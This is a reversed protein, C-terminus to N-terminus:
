IGYRGRLANFNQSVEAATLGVNYMRAVSISGAWGLLGNARSGIRWPVGPSSINSANTVQGYSTGNRYITYVGSVKSLVIHYWTNESWDSASGYFTNTGGLWTGLRQGTWFGELVIEGKSFIMIADNGAAILFGIKLWFELTFDGAGFRLSAPDFLSVYGTRGAFSFSGRNTTDYSPAPSGLL